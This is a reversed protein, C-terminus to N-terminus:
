CWMWRGTSSYGHNVSCLRFPIVRTTNGTEPGLHSFYDSMTLRPLCYFNHRRFPVGERYASIVSMRNIRCKCHVRDNSVVTFANWDGVSESVCVFVPMLVEKLGEAPQTNCRRTPLKHVHWLLPEPTLRVFCSIIKGIECPHIYTQQLPTPTLSPTGRAAGGWGQGKWMSSYGTAPGLVPFENLGKQISHRQLSHPPSLKWCSFFMLARCRAATAPQRVRSSQRGPGPRPPLYWQAPETLTGSSGGEARRQWLHVLPSSVGTGRQPKGSRHHSGPLLRFLSQSKDSNFFFFFFLLFGLLM